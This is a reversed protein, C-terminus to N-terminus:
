MQSLRLDAIDERSFPQADLLQTIAQKAKLNGARMREDLQVSWDNLANDVIVRQEDTLKNLARQPFVLMGWTYIVPTETFYNFRSHWNLAIAASPPSILTDIAGTDLGTLVDGINMVLYNVNMQKSLAQIDSTNPLWLKAGRVADMDQLPQKSMLYSFGGDLPGFGVWNDAQLRKIFDGDITKRAQYVQDLSDFQFPQSLDKLDSNILDLGTGSVLAGQLQGIKMKRLVTKDDGMVGGPYVKLTVAGQTQTEILEAVARLSTVADTGSPYLTSIKLTTTAFAINSLTVWCLVAILRM